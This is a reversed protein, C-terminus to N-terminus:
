EKAKPRPLLLKLVKGVAITKGEDRLTLRGLAQSNAYTDVVISQKVSLVCTVGQGQKAFPPNMDEKKTKPNFISVLKAATVECEVTHTHLMCDYSHLASSSFPLSPLFSFSKIGIHFLSLSYVCILDNLQLFPFAVL